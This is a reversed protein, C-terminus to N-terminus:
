KPALKLIKGKEYHVRGRPSQVNATMTEVTIEPVRKLLDRM